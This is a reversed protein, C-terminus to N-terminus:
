GNVQEKIFTAVTEVCSELNQQLTVGSKKRPKFSHDGDPLFITKVSTPMDYGEVEEKNGFTDRDGQVIITPISYENDLHELRLKDPKGPPHFPYGLAVVGSINEVIGQETELDQEAALMTAMRGGMSKGGIFLPLRSQHELCVKAFHELLVPAKNPPRKKGDIRCQEMYPFEFRIVNINHQAILGAVEVMFDSDMGAGAGHAFIFNAIPADATNIAVNIPM